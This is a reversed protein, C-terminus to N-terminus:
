DDEDLLDLVSYGKIYTYFQTRASSCDQKLKPCYNTVVYYNIDYPNIYDDCNYVQDGGMYM